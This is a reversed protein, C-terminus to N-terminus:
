RVTVRWELPVTAAAYCAVDDCAQYELRGSIRVERASAPAPGSPARQVMVDQALRFPRAYVPVTENLAKFVYPESAPFELPSLILGPQPDILLRIAKYKHAGPAYVHMSAKPEVDVVLAFRRNADVERDSAWAATTLHPTEHRLPSAGRAIGIQALMSAVTHRESEPFARTIVLSADVVYVVPHPAGMRQADADFRTDVMGLDAIIKRGSLMPFGIRREAGFAALVPVPDITVAALGYGAAQLLPRAAEFEVLQVKCSPCWDASRLFTIVAGKPGALSRATRSAGSQDLGAVTALSDGVSPPRASAGSPALRPPQPWLTAALAVAVLIMFNM